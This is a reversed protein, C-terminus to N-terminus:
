TKQLKEKLDDLVRSMYKQDRRVRRAFEPQRNKQVIALANLKQIIKGVKKIQARTDKGVSKVFKMLANRRTKEPTKLINKYGYKGLEGSRSIPIRVKSTKSRMRKRTSKNKRTKPVMIRNYEGL